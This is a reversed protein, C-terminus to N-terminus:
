PIWLVRAVGTFLDGGRASSMGQALLYETRTWVKEDAILYSGEPLDWLQNMNYITPFESVTEQIQDRM